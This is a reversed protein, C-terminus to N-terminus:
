KEKKDYICDHYADLLEKHDQELAKYKDSLVNYNDILEQLTDVCKVVTYNETKDIIINTCSKIKDLAEQYKM